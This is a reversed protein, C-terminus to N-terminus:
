RKQRARRLEAEAAIYGFSAWQDGAVIKRFVKAAEDPKNHYLYRNGLGYGISASSLDDPRKELEELLRGGGEIGKYIKVLAYYDGNEIIELDDPIAEVAKSADEKKELRRLTMYQWHKTAVLMDPNKSVKEAENYARLASKFDGKLYYALGLHYWINSQLTSTPTNRTNPIGDPEIQDPKGKILKAAKEFDKISDDFCRLTIYRHGRHRYLRADNPFKKIGETFIRIAEKYEGLYATRRGYWILEDPVTPNRTHAERAVALNAEYTRATAEPMEPKVQKASDVCPQSFAGVAFTLVIAITSLSKMAPINGAVGAVSWHPLRRQNRPPSHTVIDCFLLYTFRL